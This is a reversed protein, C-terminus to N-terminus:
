YICFFMVFRHIQKCSSSTACISLEHICKRFQFIFTKLAFVILILCSSYYHNKMLRGLLTSCRISQFLCNVKSTFNQRVFFGQYIVNML